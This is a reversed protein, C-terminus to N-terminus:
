GAHGRFDRLAIEDPGFSWEVPTARTVGLPAQESRLRLTSLSGRQKQVPPRSIHYKCCRPKGPPKGQQRGCYIQKKVLSTSYFHMRLGKFEWRKQYHNRMGEESQILASLSLLALSVGGRLSLAPKTLM